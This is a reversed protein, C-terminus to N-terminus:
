SISNEGARILGINRGKNKATAKVHHHHFLTLDIFLIHEQIHKICVNLIQTFMNGLIAYMIYIRYTTFSKNPM